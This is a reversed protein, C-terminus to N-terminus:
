FGTITTEVEPAETEPKEPDIETTDESTPYPKTATGEYPVIDTCWERITRGHWNAGYDTISPHFILCVESYDNRGYEIIPNDERRYDPAQQYDPFWNIKYGEDTRFQINYKLEQEINPNNIAY